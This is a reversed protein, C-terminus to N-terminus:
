YIEVIFNGIEILKPLSAEIKGKLANFMDGFFFALPTAEIVSQHLLWSNVDSDAIIKAEHLTPGIKNESSFPSVLLHIINLIAAKIEILYSNIWNWYKHKIVFFAVIVFGVGGLYDYMKLKNIERESIHDRYINLAEFFQPELFINKNMNYIRQKHAEVTKIQLYAYGNRYKESFPMYSREILNIMRNYKWHPFLGYHNLGYVDSFVQVFNEKTGLINWKNEEVTCLRLYNFLPETIVKEEKYNEHLEDVLDDDDWFEEEQEEVAVYESEEIIDPAFKKRRYKAYEKVTLLEDVTPIEDAAWNYPDPAIFAPTPDQSQFSVEPKVFISLTNIWKKQKIGKKIDEKLFSKLFKLKKSKKIEGKRMVDWSPLIRASPQFQIQEKIIDKYDPRQSIFKLFKEQKEQIKIKNKKM